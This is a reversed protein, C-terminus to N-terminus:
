PLGLSKARDHHTKQDWDGTLHGQIIHGLEHRFSTRNVADEPTDFDVQMTFSRVLTFGEQPVHGSPPHTDLDPDFIVWIVNDEILKQVSGVGVMPAFYVNWGTITERAAVAIETLSGKYGNRKVMIGLTPEWDWGDLFKKRLWLIRGYIAVFTLAVVWMLALAQGTIGAATVWISAAITLVGLAQQATVGAPRAGIETVTGDPAFRVHIMTDEATM